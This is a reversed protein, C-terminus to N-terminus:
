SNIFISATAAGTSPISDSLKGILKPVDSSDVDSSDM